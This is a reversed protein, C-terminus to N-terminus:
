GRVKSSDSQIVSAQAFPWHLSFSRSSPIKQENRDTMDSSFCRYIITYKFVNIIGTTQLERLLVYFVKSLFRQWYLEFQPDFRVNYKQTWSEKLKSMFYTMIDFFWCTCIITGSTQNSNQITLLKTSSQNRQNAQRLILCM